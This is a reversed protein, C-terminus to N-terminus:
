KLKQVFGTITYSEKKKSLIKRDYIVAIGIGLIFALCGVLEKALVFHLGTLYGIFFLIVPIMYLVAASLLVAGSSASITVLDGVAAGIPNEVSILMKEQVAGCGSCKHCDGSCASQRIHLVLVTGDDNVKHM